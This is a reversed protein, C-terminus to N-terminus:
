ATPKEMLASAIAVVEEQSVGLGALHEYYASQVTAFSDREARDERLKKVEDIVRAVLEKEPPINAQRLAHEIVM